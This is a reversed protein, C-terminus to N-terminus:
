IWPISPLRPLYDGGGTKDGGCERCRACESLGDTRGPRLPGDAVSRSALASPHCHAWCSENASHTRLLFLELGNM